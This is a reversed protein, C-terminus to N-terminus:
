FDTAIRTLLGGDAVLTAGTIFSAAPSALFLVAAAIEDPSAIRGMPVAEAAQQRIGPLEAPPYGRWMLPTDTSGPVICNVRVNTRALDLAMAKTMGAVGAKAATVAALGPLTAYGLVSSMNVIAGGRELMHPVVYKACLFQGTLVVDILKMWDEDAIQWFPAAIDYGANNFLIDIRGHAEITHAVLARVEDARAVDTAISTTLAGAQVIAHAVQAASDADRDAIVVAAGQRAFLGAAAAGIGSGGGTVIAVRQDFRPHTTDIAM